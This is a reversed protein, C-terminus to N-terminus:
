YYQNSKEVELKIRIIGDYIRKFKVIKKNFNKDM